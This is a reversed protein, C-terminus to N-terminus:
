GRVAEAFNMVVGATYTGGNNYDTEEDINFLGTADSYKDHVIQGTSTDARTFFNLKLGKLKAIDGNPHNPSYYDKLVLWGPVYIHHASTIQERSVIGGLSNNMNIGDAAECVYKDSTSAERQMAIGDSPMIGDTKDEGPRQIQVSVNVSAEVGMDTTSTLQVVMPVALDRQPNLDTCGKGLLDVDGNNMLADNYSMKAGVALSDEIKRAKGMVVTVLYTSGDSKTVTFQSSNTTDAYTLTPEATGSPDTSPSASTSEDGTVLHAGDDNTTDANKAKGCGALVLVLAIGTLAKRSNRM